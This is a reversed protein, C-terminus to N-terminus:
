PKKPEQLHRNLADPFQARRHGDIMGRMAAILGGPALIVLSASAIRQFRQRIIHFSV